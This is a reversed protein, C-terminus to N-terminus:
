GPTIAVLSLLAVRRGRALVFCAVPHVQQVLERVQLVLHSARHRREACADRLESRKEVRKEGIRSATDPTSHAAVVMMPRRGKWTGGQGHRTQSRAGGEPDRHRRGKDTTSKDLSSSLKSRRGSFSSMGSSLRRPLMTTSAV